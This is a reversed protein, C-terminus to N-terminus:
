YAGRVKHGPEQAAHLESLLRKCIKDLESEGVEATGLTLRTYHGGEVEIRLDVTGLAGAYRAHDSGGPEGAFGRERFFRAAFGLVEDSGARARYFYEM